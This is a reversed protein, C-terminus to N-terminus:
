KNMDRIQSELEWAMQEFDPSEEERERSYASPDVAIVEANFSVEAIHNMRTCMPIGAREGVKKYTDSCELFRFLDGIALDSFKM